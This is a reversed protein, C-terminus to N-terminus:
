EGFLQLCLCMMSLCFCSCKIAAMKAGSVKSQMIVGPLFVTYGVGVTKNAMWSNNCGNNYLKPVRPLIQSQGSKKNACHENM